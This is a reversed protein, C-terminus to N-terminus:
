IASPNFHGIKRNSFSVPPKCSSRAHIKRMLHFHLMAWLLRLPERAGRPWRRAVVGSHEMEILTKQHEAPVLPPPSSALSPDGRGGGGRVERPLPSLTLEAFRPDV